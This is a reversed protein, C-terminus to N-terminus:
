IVNRHNLDGRDNETTIIKFFLCHDSTIDNPSSELFNFLNGSRDTITISFKSINAKPQKYIKPMKEWCNKDLTIYYGAQVATDMKLVAFCKQINTDISDVVDNIEKINLLLYPERTVNNKDPITADLLEISKVNKYEKPLEMVYNNPSPYVTKDRSGSNIALYSEVFDYKRLPEQLVSLQSDNNQIVPNRNYLNYQTPEVNYKGYRVYHEGLRNNFYNSM